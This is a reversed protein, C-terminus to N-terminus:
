SDDGFDEEAGGIMVYGSNRRWAWFGGGSIVGLWARLAM